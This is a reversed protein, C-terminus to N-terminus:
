VVVSTAGRTSPGVGRCIGRVSVAVSVVPTSDGEDRVAAMTSLTM